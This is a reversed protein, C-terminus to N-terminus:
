MILPMLAMPLHIFKTVREKWFFNRHNCAKSKTMLGFFKQWHWEIESKLKCIKSKFDPQFKKSRIRPIRYLRKIRPKLNLKKFGAITTKGATGILAKVFVCCCNEHGNCSFNDIIRNITKYCNVMWKYKIDNCMGVILAQPANVLHCKCVQDIGACYMGPQMM